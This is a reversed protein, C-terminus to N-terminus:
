RQALGVFEDDCESRERADFGELSTEKMIPLVKCDVKNVFDTLGM